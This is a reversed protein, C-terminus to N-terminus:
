VNEFAYVILVRKIEQMLGFSFKFVPYILLRKLLIYTEKNELEIVLPKWFQESGNDVDCRSM